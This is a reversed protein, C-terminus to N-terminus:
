ITFFFCTVCLDRDHVHFPVQEMGNKYTIVDQLLIQNIEANLISVCVCLVYM